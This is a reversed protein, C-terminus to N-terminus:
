LIPQPLCTGKLLAIKEIDRRYIIVNVPTEPLNRTITFYFGVKEKYQEKIQAQHEKSYVNKRMYNSAIQLRKKNFGKSELLNLIAVRSVLLYDIKTIDKKSFDPAIGNDIIQAFPWLLLYYETSKNLDTLWGEVETNDKLLFSLEFAFTPINKNVYHASCKEDVIGENLGITSSTLIVDQGQLQAEKSSIRTFSDFPSYPYLNEDLFKSIEKEVRNDINRIFSTM